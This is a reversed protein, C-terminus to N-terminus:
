LFIQLNEQAFITTLSDYLLHIVQLRFQTM